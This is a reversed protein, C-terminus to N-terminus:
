IFGRVGMLEWDLEDWGDCRDLNPFIDAMGRAVTELGSGDLTLPLKHVDLCSLAYKRLSRLGQFRPDESINKLDDVIKITNLHIGLLQLGACHISIQHLCAVTTACTNECCPYGLLFELRPLAMALEAVDDNNLNFVCQGNRCVVAVNLYVMNRFSQIVSTFSPDITPEPFNETNLTDLPGRMWSLPTTGTHLHPLLILHSVAADSLPILTFFDRFSPGCRLVVSSLSDKLYTRPIGHDHLHVSLLRLTSTPLASITSAIAQLSSRPSEPDGWSTPIAIATLNQSLFLDLYPLNFRTCSWNLAQLAPFWGGPPVNLRFKYLAEEGLDQGVDVRVFRM